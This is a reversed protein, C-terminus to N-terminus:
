IGTHEEQRESGSIWCSREIHVAVLGLEIGILVDDM